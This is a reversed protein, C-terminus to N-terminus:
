LLKHFLLLSFLLCVIGKEKFKELM